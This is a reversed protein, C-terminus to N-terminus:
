RLIVLPLHTNEIIKRTNSGLFAHAIMSHSLAGM